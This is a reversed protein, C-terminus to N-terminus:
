SGYFLKYNLVTPIKIGKGFDFSIRKMIQRVDEEEIKHHSMFEAIMSEIFKVREKTRNKRSSSFHIILQTLLPIRLKPNLKFNSEFQVFWNKILILDKASFDLKLDNITAFLSTLSELLLENDVLDYIRVELDDAAPHEVFLHMFLKVESNINKQMRNKFEFDHQKRSLYFSFLLDNIFFTQIFLKKFKDLDHDLGLRKEVDAIRAKQIYEPFFDAVKHLYGLYAFETMQNFDFEEVIECKNNDVLSLILLDIALFQRFKGGMLQLLSKPGLKSMKQMNDLDVNGVTILKLRDKLYSKLHSESSFRKILQVYVLISADTEIGNVKLDQNDSYEILEFLDECSFIEPKMLRLFELSTVSRLDDAIGNVFLNFEFLSSAWLKDENELSTFNSDKIIEGFAIKNIEGVVLPDLSLLEQLELVIGAENAGLERKHSILLAVNKYFSYRASTSKLLTTIWHIQPFYRRLSPYNNFNVMPRINKTLDMLNHNIFYDLDKVYLFPNEEDSHFEPLMKKQFNLFLETMDKVGVVRERLNQAVHTLILRLTFSFIHECNIDVGLSKEIQYNFYNYDSKNNKEKTQSSLQTTKFKSEILTEALEISHLNSLDKILNKADLRLYELQLTSQVRSIQDFLDSAKQFRMKPDSHIWKTVLQVVENPLDNRLEQIPTISGALLKSFGLLGKEPFALQGTLLEYFVLGLSYLDNVESYNQSLYRGEKWLEPSTYHFSYSNSVRHVLEDDKKLMAIGFDLIKVEGFQSIFINEPKVDRHLVKYDDDSNLSHAYHLADLSEKAFYLAFDLGITRKHRKSTSILQSVNLGKILEMVFFCIEGDVILDHVKCVNPHTLSCMGHVEEALFQAALKVNKIKELRLLKIACFDGLHMRSAKWIEGMGGNGIISDFLYKDRYCFGKYMFGRYCM